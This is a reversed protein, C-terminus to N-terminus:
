GMKPMLPLHRRNGNAAQISNGKGTFDDGTLTKTNQRLFKRDTLGTAITEAGHPFGSSGTWCM